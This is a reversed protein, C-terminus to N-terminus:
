RPTGDCSAGSPRSCSGDRVQRSGDLVALRMSVVPPVILTAPRALSSPCRALRTLHTRASAGLLDDFSSTLQWLPLLGMVDRMVSPLAEEGTTVLTTPVRLSFEHACMKKRETKKPRKRGPHTKIEDARWVSVVKSWKEKLILRHDERVAAAMLAAVSEWKKTIWASDGGIDDIGHRGKLTGDYLDYQVRRLLHLKSV